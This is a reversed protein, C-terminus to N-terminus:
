CKILWYHVNVAIGFAEGGNWCGTAVSNAHDSIFGQLAPHGQIRDNVNQNFNVHDRRQLPGYKLYADQLATPAQSPQALLLIQFCQASTFTDVAQTLKERDRQMAQAVVNTYDEVMLDASLYFKLEVIHDPNGQENIIALDFRHRKWERTVFLNNDGNALSIHLKFALRDRIAHEAKSTLSLYALEDTEFSNHLDNLCTALADFM